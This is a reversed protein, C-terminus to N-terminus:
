GPSTPSLCRFPFYNRQLLFQLQKTRIHEQLYSAKRRCVLKLMLLAKQLQSKMGPAPSQWQNRALAAKSLNFQVLFTSRKMQGRGMLEHQYVTNSFTSVDKEM